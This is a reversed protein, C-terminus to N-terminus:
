INLFAGFEKHIKKEQIDNQKTVVFILLMRCISLALQPKGLFLFSGLRAKRENKLM